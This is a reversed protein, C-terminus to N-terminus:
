TALIDEPLSFHCQVSSERQNRIPSLYATDRYGGFNCQQREYYGPTVASEFETSAIGYAESLTNAHYQTSIYGQTPHFWITSVVYLRGQFHKILCNDTMVIKPGMQVFKSVDFTTTRPM